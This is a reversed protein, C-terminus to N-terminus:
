RCGRGGRRPSAVPWPAPAVLTSQVARCRFGADLRPVHLPELALLGFEHRLVAGHVRCCCTRGWPRGCNARRASGGRDPRMPELPPVLIGHGRFAIPRCPPLALACSGSASPSGGSGAASNQAVEHRDPPAPRARISVDGHPVSRGSPFQSLGCSAASGSRRRSSRLVVIVRPNGPRRARSESLRARTCAPWQACPHAEADAGDDPRDAARDAPRPPTSDAAASEATVAISEHEDCSVGRDGEVEDVEDDARARDERERHEHHVGGVAELGRVVHDERQRPHREQGDAPRAPETSPMVQAASAVAERLPWTGPPPARRRRIASCRPPSRTRCGRPPQCRRCSLRRESERRSVPRCRALWCVRSSEM